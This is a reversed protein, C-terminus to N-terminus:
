TVFREVVLGAFLVALGVLAALALGMATVLVGLAVAARLRVWWPIRVEPPELARLDGGTLVVLDGSPLGLDLVDDISGFSRPDVEGMAIRRLLNIQDYLRLRRQYAFEARRRATAIQEVERHWACGVVSIAVVVAVLGLEVTDVPFNVRPRIAVHIPTEVTTSTTAVSASNTCRVPPHGNAM